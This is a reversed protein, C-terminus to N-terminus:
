LWGWDQLVGVGQPLIPEALGPSPHQALAFRVEAQEEAGSLSERKEWRKGCRWTWPITTVVRPAWCLGKHEELGLMLLSSTVVAIERAPCLAARPDM